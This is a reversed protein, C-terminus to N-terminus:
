SSRSWKNCPARDGPKQIWWYVSITRMFDDIDKENGFKYYIKCVTNKVKGHMQCHQDSMELFEIKEQGVSISVRCMRRTGKHANRKPKEEHKIIRGM